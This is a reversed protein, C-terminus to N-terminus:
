YFFNFPIKLVWNKLLESLKNKIKAEYKWEELKEV